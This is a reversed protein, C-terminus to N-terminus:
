EGKKMAELAKKLEVIKKLSKISNPNGSPAFKKILDMMRENKTGGLETCLKIVNRQEVKLPTDDKSQVTSNGTRKTPRQTLAEADDDDTALGYAMLLSYRRAYTLSSGLVQAPNAKGQLTNGEVVKCGRIPESAKGNKDIKVTYVYDFGNDATETYQFYSGCNEYIYDNIEALDTYKYGYGKKNKVVKGETAM